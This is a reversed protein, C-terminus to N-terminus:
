HECKVLIQIEVRSPFSRSKTILFRFTVYVTSNSFSNNQHARESEVLWKAWHEFMFPTNYPYCLTTHIIATHSALM